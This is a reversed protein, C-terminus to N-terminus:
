MYHYSCREPVAANGVQQNLSEFALKREERSQEKVADAEEQIQKALDTRWQVRCLVLYGQVACAISAVVLVGTLGRQTGQALMM